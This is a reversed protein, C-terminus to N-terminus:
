LFTISPNIGFMILKSLNYCEYANFQALGIYSEYWLLKYWGCDALKDDQLKNTGKAQEVRIKWGLLSQNAFTTVSTKQFM